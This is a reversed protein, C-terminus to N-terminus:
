LINRRRSNFICIIIKSAKFDGALVDIEEICDFVWPLISSHCLNMVWIILSAHSYEVNVASVAGMANVGM